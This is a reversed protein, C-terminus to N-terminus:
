NKNFEKIFHKIKEEKKESRKKFSQKIIKLQGVSKTSLPNKQKVAQNDIFFANPSRQKFKYKNISELQNKKKLM